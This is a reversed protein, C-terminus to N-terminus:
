MSSLGRDKNVFIAKHRSKIFPIFKSAIFAPLQMGEVYQHALQYGSNQFPSLRMDLARFDGNSIDVNMMNKKYIDNQIIVHKYPNIKNLIKQINEFSLHIFVDKIIILDAEPLNDCVADMHLFRHNKNTYKRKSFDIIIGSTDIGTYKKDTLTLRSGIKFDGCGVDLITLIDPHSNIYNNIFNIIPTNFIPISGTGSGLGWKKKAYIENFVETLRNKIKTM